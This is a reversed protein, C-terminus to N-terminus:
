PESKLIMHEFGPNTPFFMVMLVLSTGSSSRLPPWPMFMSKVM